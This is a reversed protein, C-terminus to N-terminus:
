TVFVNVNAHFHGRLILRLRHLEESIVRNLLMNYNLYLLQHAIAIDMTVLPKIQQDNSQQTSVTSFVFFSIQFSGVTM